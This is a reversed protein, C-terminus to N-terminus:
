RRSRWARMTAAEFGEVALGEAGVAPRARGAAAAEGAQDLLAVEELAAAAVEGV